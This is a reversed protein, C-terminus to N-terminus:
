FFGGTNTKDAATAPANLSDESMTSEITLRTNNSTVSSVSDRPQSSTSGTSDRGLVSEDYGVM